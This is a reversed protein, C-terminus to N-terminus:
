IHALVSSDLTKVNHWAQGAYAYVGPKLPGDYIAWPNIGYSKDSEKQIFAYAANRDKFAKITMRQKGIGLQGHHITRSVKTM